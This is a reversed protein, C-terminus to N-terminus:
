EKLDDFFLVDLDEEASFDLDEDSDAQEYSGNENWLTFFGDATLLGDGEIKFAAENQMSTKLTLTREVNASIGEFPQASWELSKVDVLPADKSFTTRYLNVRELDYAYSLKETLTIHYYDTSYVINAVKIKEQNIGDSIWYEAGILINEDQAVGILDGDKTCSLVKVKFDDVMTAPKFDEVILLNADLGLEDKAKMFINLEDIKAQSDIITQNLSLDAADGLIMKRASDVSLKHLHNDVDTVWFDDSQTVRLYHNPTNPHPHESSEHARFEKLSVYSYSSDIIAQINKANRIITHIGIDITKAVPGTNGPVFSSANGSNRYSYLIELGTQQDQAFVAQERAFFGEPVAANDKLCHILMEGNNLNKLEAIALEMKPSIVKDIALVKERYDDESEVQLVGDGLVVKTFLLRKGLLSEALVNLGQSTLLMGVSGDKFTSTIETDTM